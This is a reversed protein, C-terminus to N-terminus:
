KVESPKSNSNIMNNLKETQTVDDNYKAVKENYESTLNNLEDYLMSLAEQERVLVERRAYFESSSGFCGSTEACNNFITIDANLQAIRQEYEATKADIEAKINEMESMLEDMEARINNFVSIYKEYFDVIKDQDKFIEAYHKELVEPLNKVETGARVYLEEQRENEGYSGIEKELLDKNDNYVQTLASSLNGREDESMRAWVAHLLEHATTLERIGDLETDTINYIYINGETYCGLIAMESDVGYRCKENFEEGENLTPMSAKFLFGGRETLELSGWIRQMEDSPKYSLGRGFDYIWQWNLFAILALISVLMFFSWIIYQRRKNVKWAM